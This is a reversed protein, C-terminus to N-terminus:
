KIFDLMGVSNAFIFLIGLPAIYRLLVMVTTFQWPALAFEAKVVEPTMVWGAFVAILLGGLPMLINATLYDFMAFINGGMFGFDIQAWQTGALSFVTGLSFVWIAVGAIIAAKVRPMRQREELYATTGELLAIASTFAAFVIMIFFLTGFFDGMPM